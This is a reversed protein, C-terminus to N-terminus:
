VLLAESDALDHQPFIGSLGRSGAGRIFKMLVTEAQDDRSHGTAVRQLRQERPLRAFFEYRLERAAEELTAGRQRALEPASGEGGFFELGNEHALSRVFDRDIDAEAGRIGHHFHAVLLVIGLEERLDLLIRLLAVSDPGGSVAVAVRDGARVLGQDRIYKLVATQV